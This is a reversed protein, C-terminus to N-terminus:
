PMKRDNVVEKVIAQRVLRNLSIGERAAKSLAQQHLRPPIRVKFSGKASKLPEKGAEKCLQLYDDIAERFATELEAVSRGEFTVMDRIGEIKGFFTKDKESFHVSGIFQKYPLTDNM